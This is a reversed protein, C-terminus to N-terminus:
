PTYFIYDWPNAPQDDIAVWFRTTPSVSGYAYYRWGGDGDHHEAMRWGDGFAAVCKSDAVERSVLETGEVLSNLPTLNINGKAWGDYFTTTLGPPVPSNDQKLCLIPLRATCPTDGEYANTTADWGVRDVGNAHGVLKWTMGKCTSPVTTVPALEAAVSEPQLAFKQEPVIGALQNVASSSVSTSLNPSGAYAPLVLTLVTIASLSFLTNSSMMVM